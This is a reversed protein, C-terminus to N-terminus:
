LGGEFAPQVEMGNLYGSMPKRVLIVETPLTDRRVFIQGDRSFVPAKQVRQLRNDVVHWIYGDATLAATPLAFLDDVKAGQLQVSVFSGFLLPQPQDLPKDVTVVLTRLRTNADISAALRAVKGQWTVGPRDRSALTVIQGIPDAPLQQWQAAALALTVEAQQSARLNAVPSAVDLYSGQGVQRSVVVADFPAKVQTQALDRQAQVLAAKAARYRAKAVKLQPERMVLASPKEKIGARQWDQKAQQQQREEQQLALGAEALAQKATALARRYDTDDLRILSEGQRVRGGVVFRDNRWVVSGAVQSSLSIEDVAKVEGFAQMRSQYSGATLLQVSVRPAILKEEQKEPLPQTSIAYDTYFLAVPITALALTTLLIPQWRSNKSM